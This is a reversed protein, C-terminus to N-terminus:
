STSIPISVFVMAFSCTKPANASVMLVNKDAVVSMVVLVVIFHILKLIPVDVLAFKKRQKPVLPLVIVLVVFKVKQANTLVLAVIINITTQILASTIASQKPNQASVFVVLVLLVVRVLIAVVVM